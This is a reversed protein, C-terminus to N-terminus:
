HFITRQTLQHYRIANHLYQIYYVDIFPIIHLIVILMYDFINIIFLCLFVTLGLNSLSMMVSAHHLYLNPSGGDGPLKEGDGVLEM